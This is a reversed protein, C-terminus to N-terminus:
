QPRSFPPFEKGAFDAPYLLKALEEAGRLNWFSLTTMYRAPLLYVRGSKIAPVEALAAHGVLFRRYPEAGDQPQNIIIVEPRMAVIGEIDIVPNRELGAEAAVNLGGAAEIIAGETSGKGATYLKDAFRATSMVRPRSAALKAGVIKQLAEHRARVERAFAIARQEEGYIYGMLLIDNVRGEPDNNLQTQVVTLGVRTLAEIFDKQSFASAIVIDPRTAIVAEPERPLTPLSAALDAVNSQEAVKTFAGVAVVRSAPVLAYTVEDHGLSVTVIREPKARITVRGNLGEIERPWGANDPNVIGPVGALPNRVSTPAPTAGPSPTPPESTGGCAAAALTVIALTAFLISIRAPM